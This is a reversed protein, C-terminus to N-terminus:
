EHDFFSVSQKLLGLDFLGMVNGDARWVAEDFFRWLSAAAAAVVFHAVALGIVAAKVHALASPMALVFVGAALSRLVALGSQMDAIGRQAVVISSSTFSASRALVPQAIADVAHFGCALAGVQFSVLALNIQSAAEPTFLTAALGPGPSAPAMLKDLELGFTLLGALTVATAAAVIVYNARDGQKQCLRRHLALGCVVATPLIWPALMLPGLKAPSLALPAPGAMHALSLALGWLAGLPVASLLFLVLTTPAVLARPAQLAAPRTLPTRYALRAMDGLYRAAVEKNAWHRLRWPRWPPSGGFGVPSPTSPM